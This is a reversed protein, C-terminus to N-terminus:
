IHFQASSHWVLDTDSALVFSSANKLSSLNYREDDDFSIKQPSTRSQMESSFM